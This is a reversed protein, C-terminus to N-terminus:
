RNDEPSIPMINASINAEKAQQALEEDSVKRIYEPNTAWLWIPKKHHDGASPCVPRDIMSYFRCDGCWCQRTRIWQDPRKSKTPESSLTTPATTTVLEINDVVEELDMTLDPISNLVTMPNLNTM